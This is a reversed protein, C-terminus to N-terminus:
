TSLPLSKFVIHLLVRFFLLALGLDGVGVLAAKHVVDLRLIKKIRKTLKEISYGIGPTGFDGFYSFDKRVQCPNVGLFGALDKSSVYQIGQQSLHIAWRFYFPLRKITEDPIKHYRM